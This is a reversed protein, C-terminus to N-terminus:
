QGDREEQGSRAYGFPEAAPDGYWHWAAIAAQGLALRGTGAYCWYRDAVPHLRGKPVSAVRWNVLMALVDVYCTETEAVRFGRYGTSHPDDPDLATVDHGLLQSLQGAMVHYWEEDRVAMVAAGDQTFESLSDPDILPRTVQDFDRGEDTQRDQECVAESIRAFDPHDPRQTIQM